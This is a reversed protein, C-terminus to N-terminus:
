RKVIKNEFVGEKWVPETVHEGKLMRYLLEPTNAGSEATIPLGGSFRPNIEVLKMRGESGAKFQM